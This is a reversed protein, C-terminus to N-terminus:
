TATHSVAAAEWTLVWTKQWTAVKELFDYYVWGGIISVEVLWITSNFPNYRELLPSASLKQNNIRLHYTHNRREKLFYFPEFILIASCCWRFWSTVTVQCRLVSKIKWIFLTPRVGQIYTSFLHQLHKWVVKSIHWMQFLDPLQCRRVLCRWVSLWVM